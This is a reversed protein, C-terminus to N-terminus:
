KKSLVKSLFKNMKEEMEEFNEEMEEFYTVYKRALIRGVDRNIMSVTYIPIDALLDAQEALRFKGGEMVILFDIPSSKYIYRNIKTFNAFEKKRIICLGGINEIHFKKNDRMGFAIYFENENIGPTLYNEYIM